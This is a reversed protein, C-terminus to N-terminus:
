EITLRNFLGMTAFSLFSFLHIGTALNLLLISSFRASNIPMKKIGPCVVARKKKMKLYWPDAGYHKEICDPCLGYSFSAESYKEIYTEMLKWFEKNDRIKKCYACIPIIGKLTKARALAGKLERVRTIRQNQIRIQETIDRVIHVAACLHGQSDFIPGVSILMWRGDNLKHELSERKRTTRMRFIPCGPVPKLTGHILGCCCNGEVKVAPINFKKAVVANSKIIRGEM